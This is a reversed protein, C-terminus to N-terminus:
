WLHGVSTLIYLSSVTSHMTKFSVDTEYRRIELSLLWQVRNLNYSLSHSCIFPIRQVHCLLQVCSSLLQSQVYTVHLTLGSLIWSSPIPAHLGVGLWALLLQYSSPSPSNIKRLPSDRQPNITSWHFSVCGVTYLCCLNFKILKKFPCYTPHTTFSSHIQSSNPYPHIHDFCLIYFERLVLFLM